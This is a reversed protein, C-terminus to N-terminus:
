FDNFDFVLEGTELAVRAGYLEVYGQVQVAEVHVEALPRFRSKLCMKIFVSVDDDMLMM